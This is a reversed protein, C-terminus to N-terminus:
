YLKIAKKAAISHDLIPKPYAIQTDYDKFWSHIIKPSLLKLEPVWTKIYKCEPDFKKQQLWPNFIRFYPQADCGTSAVWQWNGNNVAPDYDALKSAFYKEGLQWDLHLDKVLFSATIMRLRNHMFGTQNLQRMGADVIPFGTKGACWLKFKHTDQEWKIHDYKPNFAHGFVHPNHHAIYTFFDRWYLQRILPHNHGLSKVIEYFATRVSVTGFKLHASLHTTSLYPLDRIKAYDKFKIINKLIKNGILSGGSTVLDPNLDPLLSKGIESLKSAHAIKKDYFCGPRFRHKIKPEAVVFNEANKFFATFVQYTKGTKTQVEDPNLLLVDEYSRFDVQHKECLQLIQLDRQTSFPTYDKNLFVAEPKIETMLKSLVNLNSGTFFYLKGQANKVAIELDQLSEVMFQLANHSLFKNKITVQIPDFIFVLIVQQSQELAAILATNDQLRLDRRFVFLSKQYKYNM